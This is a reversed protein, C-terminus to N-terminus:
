DEFRKNSRERGGPGSYSLGVGPERTFLDRPRLAEAQRWAAVLRDEAAYDFPDQLVMEEMGGPAPPNEVLWRATHALAQAPAVKDRYGLENRLKSIDVVRHTTQPQMIMPRAPLAWSWPMDVLTGTYDLTAALIEVVQRLSLVEEDGCNYIQGAAVEPRDVALLLAHALNEAYGYSHLTLGGDPVIIFPRQDIIRKVICWERPVLQYPGYVYPYRFHTAQPQLEFLARETRVIRYGKEDEEPVEVLPAEERTPVPLGPPSFLEANMYGRYAPQGGISIFRGVRGQMLEAIALLRGYTAVCLDFRRDGLAEALSAQDYPNTHIHEVEPPIEAVEHNGTHLIAVSFGRALLGNVIFHGTPGTGGIVLASQQM